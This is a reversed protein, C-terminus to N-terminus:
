KNLAQDTNLLQRAVAAWAALDAPPLSPDVPTEGAALYARANAPDSFAKRFGELSEEFIRSQEPPLPKTLVLASMFGIKRSVGSDPLRMARTALHRAAELFDPANLTALAQLPTNTRERQVVCVDRQPADFTSLLPPQSTRKWFTYLGRRHLDAGQGPVQTRTNSVEMAVTEWIGPPQYTNVSPGGIKETLLGSAALASDRIMEADLRFRPGRTFLRNEPDQALIEPSVRASQRYTASLVVQRYFRKVDWGSERFDVALWDLLRAHSPRAGVIGFDGPTDVLGTGFLEQWMRNVAVRAFLPHRPDVLWRALALRDRSGGAPLPPLFAPVDPGVREKRATYIGRDLVYAVPLTEREQFILAKVERPRAIYTSRGQDEPSEGPAISAAFNGASIKELKEDWRAKEECWAISPADVSRFFYDTVVKREDANWAPMPRQLIEHAVDEYMTRRIEAPDLSRAYIRIDQYSTESLSSGDTRRGFQLPATTRISASLTDYLVEVEQPEGNVQIHVGRATGSGDYSVGLHLWELRDLTNRTRVSIANTKDAHVLNVVLRGEPWRRTATTGAHDWYIEWGRNQDAMSMKSILTGKESRNGQRPQFWGTVSFADMRDFDALQGAQLRTTAAFRLAPWHLIRENWFPDQNETKYDSPSAGPASNRVRNGRGEDFRFRAILRGPAVARVTAAGGSALWSQLLPDAQVRREILKREVASRERLIANAAALKEAPPIALAPPPSAFNGDFCNDKSNNFFASLQYFEKQTVPDFKHDHCAACGLTMGLFVTGFTQVRDTVYSTQLEEPVAGDENSTINQRNFGTAVLQDINEAPLLDGALQELTFQDYRKNENYAKIVYDRYPWNMRYNDYHLGHTDSYRAADLWYRARHEGYRPSALLRDVLREYAAPSTDAVFAGVEDPPPPLGTLDFTVRRILAYRDAAPSPSLGEKELRALVFGDIDNDSWDTRRTPPLTGRQPPLFAWHEQYEAGEQVWGRLLAIEAATLQKHAEPPPMRLKDDHSEIRQILQSKDPAGRVIVPGHKRPAFAFEARDLRLDEKRSNKDSGHCHYCKQSLIPQIQENFSIREAASPAATVTAPAASTAPTTAKDRPLLLVATATVLPLIAVVWM